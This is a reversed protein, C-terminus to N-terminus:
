QVTTRRMKREHGSEGQGTSSKKTFFKTSYFFTNIKCGFFIRLKVFHM